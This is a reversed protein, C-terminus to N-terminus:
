IASQIQNILVSLVSFQFSAKILVVAARATTQRIAKVSNEGAEKNRNNRRGDAKM